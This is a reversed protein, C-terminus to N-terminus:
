NWLQFMNAGETRDNPDGMMVGGICNGGRDVAIWPHTGFTAQEVNSHPRVTQYKKWEGQYGIWYIDLPGNTENVFMVKVARSSNQSRLSGPAPCDRGVKQTPMPPAAQPPAQQPVPQAAVKLGRDRSCQLMRDIAPGAGALKWSRDKADVSMDWTPATRFAELQDRDISTMAWGNEDVAFSFVEGAVGFGVYAEIKKKNGTYGTGVKLTKGDTFLRLEDKGNSVIAACATPTKFDANSWVTWRGVKVSDPDLAQATGVAALVCGSAFISMRLSKRITM